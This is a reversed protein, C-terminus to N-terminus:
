YTSRCFSLFFRPLSGLAATSYDKGRQFKVYCENDFLNARRKCEKIKTQDQRPFNLNPSIRQRQPMSSKNPYKAKPKTANTNRKRNTINGITMITAINFITFYVFFLRLYPRAMIGLYFFFTQNAVPSNRRRASPETMRNPLNQLVM